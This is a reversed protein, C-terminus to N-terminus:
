KQTQQSLRIVHIQIDGLTEQEHMLDPVQGLLRHSDDWEILQLGLVKHPWRRKCLPPQPEHSLLLAPSLLSHPRVLEPKEAALDSCPVGVSVLRQHECLQMIPIKCVCLFQPSWKSHRAQGKQETSYGSFPMVLGSELHPFQSEPFTFSQTDEKRGGEGVVVGRPATQM